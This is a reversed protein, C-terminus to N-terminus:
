RAHAVYSRTQLFVGLLLEFTRTSVLKQFYSTLNFKPTAYRNHIYRAAILTVLCFSGLGGQSSRTNLKALFPALRLTM